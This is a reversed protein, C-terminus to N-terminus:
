AKPKALHEVGAERVATLATGVGGTWADGHGPLVWHAEVDELKSLSSLAEDPDASFPAIQTSPAIKGWRTMSNM